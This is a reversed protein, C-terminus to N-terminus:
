RGQVTVSATKETYYGYSVKVNFSYSKFTALNTTDVTVECILTLDRGAVLEQDTGECDTYGSLDAHADVDVDVRNIETTTLSVDESGETYTVANPSYITGTALNSVKITVTFSNETGYLVVPDPLVSIQVGVPGTTYTFSSKYMQRGAAKAAEAETETYIWINGLASTEYEHYVRAIFMDTRTQGATIGSSPATLSWTFRKIGAPIGRVVDEATMNRDFHEYIPSTTSWADFNSGTLWVLDESNSVSTGGKNEVEMIIRVTNGSFVTSPEATFSTIELGAGGGGGIGPTVGPIGPITCLSISVIALISLAYFKSNM